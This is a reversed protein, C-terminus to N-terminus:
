DSDQVMTSRYREGVKKLLEIANAGSTPTETTFRLATQGIVLEDGDHLPQEDVLTAGNLLTGNSSKLDTARYVGDGGLRIQIHRRSARADEVQLPLGQDRGIVATAKGLILYVGSQSGNAIIISPM